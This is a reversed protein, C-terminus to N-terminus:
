SATSSHHIGMIEADHKLNNSIKLMLYETLLSLTQADLQPCKSQIDKELEHIDKSM